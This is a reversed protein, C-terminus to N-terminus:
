KMEFLFFLAVVRLRSPRFIPLRSLGDQKAKDFVAVATLSFIFPVSWDNVHIIVHREQPHDAIHETHRSRLESASNGIAAGAGDVQVAFRHTGANGAYAVNAVSRDGRYLSNALRGNAPSNLL